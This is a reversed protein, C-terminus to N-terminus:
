VTRKEEREGERGGGRGKRGERRGKGIVQLYPIMKPTNIATSISYNM